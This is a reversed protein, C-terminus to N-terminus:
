HKTTCLQLVAFDIRFISSKIIHHARTSGKLCTQVCSMKSKCVHDLNVKLTWWYLFSFLGDLNFICNDDYHSKRQLRAAYLCLRYILFIIYLSSNESRTWLVGHPLIRSVNSAMVNSPPDSIVIWWFGTQLSGTTWSEHLQNHRSPARQPSRWTTFWFVLLPRWWRLLSGHVM